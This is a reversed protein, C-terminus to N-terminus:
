NWFDLPRFTWTLLSLARGADTPDQTDVLYRQALPAPCSLCWSGILTALYDIADARSRQRLARLISQTLAQADMSPPKPSDLALARTQYRAITCRGQDDCAQRILTDALQRIDHASQVILDSRQPLTGPLTESTWCSFANFFALMSTDPSEYVFLELMQDVPQMPM